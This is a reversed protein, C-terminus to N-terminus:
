RRSAHVRGGSVHRDAGGRGVGGAEPLTRRGGVRLGGGQAQVRVTMKGARVTLDRGYHGARYARGGGSRGYRAAGTIEDIVDSNKRLNM